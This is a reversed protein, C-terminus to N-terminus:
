RVRVGRLVSAAKTAKLAVALPGMEAEGTKVAGARDFDPLWTRVLDGVTSVGHFGDLGIRVAYIDTLGGVNGSEAVTVNEPVGGDTASQDGVAVTVDIGALGGGFTLTYPGGAAGTVAVGGAPVNSLAEIAADITAAAADWAIAATEQEDGDVTVLLTYTGGDIGAEETVIWVASDPDYIPIIPETSGPKDGPDALFVNGFQQRNIPNGFTDLLGDVPNVTYMSARRAIARVKALALQNGLILTPEGDLLSLFTDIRDLGQQAAGAADLDTWDTVDDAGGLETTTGTLAKDLGDFGNADVATDGNILEDAFKSRTAKVLQEMQFSVEEGRAIGALVRDIQFSGGLPKLDVSLRVKTAEAPVYESNISRFAASRQALVRTYGYTLTTGGGMPNVTDHWVITDLIVSSKRFEDIIMRDVDDQTNLAAQALTVVGADAALGRMVMRWRDAFGHWPTRELLIFGAAAILVAYVVLLALTHM